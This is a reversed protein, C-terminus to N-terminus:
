RPAPQNSQFWRLAQDLHENHLRHGGDYSELRLRTFGTRRMSEAVTAAHQPSAIRDSGGNSLFFPVLKFRDGPQFLEVGLTARDENCGGMFVGIVRWGDRTMAAAVAASRKAGGSFGACAVPWQKAQPWHRTFQDLVSSLMAWGFQITDDNVGVKPGDAALVVWGANLAENTVGRIAGIASGGSPVSLILLPRPKLLNTLGAPAVFAGKASSGTLGLRSVEMGAKPNLPASFTIVSGASLLNTGFHLRQGMASLPLLALGGLLFAFVRM